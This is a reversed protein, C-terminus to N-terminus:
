IKEAPISGYIPFWEESDPVDESDDKNPFWQRRMADIMVEKVSGSGALELAKEALDEPLKMHVTVGRMEEFMGEPPSWEDGWVDYM